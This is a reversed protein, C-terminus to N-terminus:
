TFFTANRWDETDTTNNNNNPVPNPIQKPKEESLIAHPLPVNSPHSLKQLEEYPIMFVCTEQPSYFNAFTPTSVWRIKLNPFIRTIDEKEFGSAEIILIGGERLYKLSDKALIRVFDLGDEGGFLAMNPEKKYEESLLDMREKPVYPPNSIIVDFYNTYLFPDLKAFMNSQIWSIREELHSYKEDINIKAVELAEASADVGVINANPFVEGAIIALCGSGTCMDLCSRVHFPKEDENSIQPFLLTKWSSSLEDTLLIEAIYSRPILVREDVYFHFNAITASNTLYNIPIRENIRRKLRHLIEIKERKTLKCAFIESTNLYQFNECDPLYSQLNLSHFILFTAEEYTSRSQQGLKIDHEELKSICFRLIDRITHLEAFAESVEQELENQEEKAEENIKDQFIPSIFNLSPTNQFQFTTTSHFFVKRYNDNSINYRFKTLNSSNSHSFHHYNINNNNNVKTHVNNCNKRVLGFNFNQIIM